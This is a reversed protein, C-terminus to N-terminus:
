EKANIVDISDSLKNKDIDLMTSPLADNGTITICSGPLRGNVVSCHRARYSNVSVDAKSNTNFPM